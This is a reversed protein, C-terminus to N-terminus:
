RLAVLRDFDAATALRRVVLRRQRDILEYRGDVIQEVWGDSYRVVVDRSSAQSTTRSAGSGQGSSRGAEGRSGGRGGSGQGERDDDGGGRDDDRRSDGDREGSSDHDGGRGRGRGRGRQDGGDEGDRAWAAGPALFGSEGMGLGLPSLGGAVGWALAALIRRRTPFQDFSM